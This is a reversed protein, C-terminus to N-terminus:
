KFAEAPDSGPEYDYKPCYRGVTPFGMTEISCRHEGGRKTHRAEYHVCGWCAPAKQQGRYKADSQWDM